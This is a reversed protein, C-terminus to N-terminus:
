VHARGIQAASLHDAHVHTELIWEVDLKHERVFAVIKEASETKTRGSAADYDLVSDIIVCASSDPDQVVYSYTYTAPDFFSTVAPQM